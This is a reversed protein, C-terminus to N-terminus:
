ASHTNLKFKQVKFFKRSFDVNSHQHHHHHQQNHLQLTLQTLHYKSKDPLRFVSSVSHPGGKYDITECIKNYISRTTQSTM